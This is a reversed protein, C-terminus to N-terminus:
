ISVCLFTCSTGPITFLDRALCYLNPFQAQRGVWWKLPRCTDFDEHPLKFYEDLEDCSISDRKKYRLTFNVKSLSKDINDDDACDNPSSISRDVSDAHSAGAYKM